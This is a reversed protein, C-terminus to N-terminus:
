RSHWWDFQLAIRYKKSGARDRNDVPSGTCHAVPEIADRVARAIQEVRLDSDSFCNVTVTFQDMGPTDSLENVPVFSASWTVYDGTRDAAADDHRYIASADIVNLVSSDARLTETVPPYM